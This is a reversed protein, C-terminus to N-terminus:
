EYRLAIVPDVRSARWAPLLCAIGAVALLLTTVAVFVTADLPAVGYLLSSIMRTAAAAGALGLALGVGAPKLGDLLTLRLLAGRQAGLADCRMDQAM